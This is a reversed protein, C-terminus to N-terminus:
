KQKGDGGRIFAALDAARGRAMHLYSPDAAVKDLLPLFQDPAVLRNREMSAQMRLLVQNVGLKDFRVTRELHILHQQSETMRAFWDALLRADANQSFNFKQEDSSEGDEYRFTKIGMNAVKLNAELPQRFFDLKEALRFVEDVEAQRLRFRIPQDDPDDISERYVAQGDREVVIQVYPPSGGPQDRSYFIRPAGAGWLAVALMFGALWKGKM